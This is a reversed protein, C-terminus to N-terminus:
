SAPCDGVREFALDEYDSSFDADPDIKAMTMRAPAQDAAPAFRLWPEIDAQGSDWQVLLQGRSQMIRGTMTPSKMSAFRAVGDRMCLSVDGFWPDRYVGARGALGAADVAARDSTDPLPRLEANRQQEAGLRGAYDAM